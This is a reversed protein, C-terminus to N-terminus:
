ISELKQIARQGTLLIHDEMARAARAENRTKLEDLLYQHMAAYEEEDGSRTLYMYYVVQTKISELLNLLLAYGSKQWLVTHFAIDLDILSEYDGRQFASEMQDILSQLRDYDEQQLKAAASSAALAELTSRVTALELLREKDWTSILYAGTPDRELLGEAELRAFAERVPTRSVELRQAVEAERLRQGQTLKGSVIYSSVIQYVSDSLRQKEMRISPMPPLSSLKDKRSKPEQSPM